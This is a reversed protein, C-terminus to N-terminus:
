APVILNGGISLYVAGSTADILVAPTATGGAPASVTFLWSTLPGAFQAEIMDPSFDRRAPMEDYLLWPFGTAPDFPPPPLIPYVAETADPPQYWVPQRSWEQGPQEPWLAAQQAVTASTIATPVLGTADDEPRYWVPQLNRDQQPSADQWLGAQQAVTAITLDPIPTWAETEPQFWRQALSREQGPQEPWLPAQQAVTAAAAAPQDLLLLLLPSPM